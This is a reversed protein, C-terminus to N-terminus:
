KKSFLNLVLVAFLLANVLFLVHLVQQLSSHFFWLGLAEFFSFFFLAIVHRKRKLALEFYVLLNSFSFLTMAIGFLPLLEASPAYAAGFFIGVILKSFFVFCFLLVVAFCATYLFSRKLLVRQKKENVSESVMPLLVSAFSIALFYILKALLSAISYQGSQEASFFHKVLFIDINILFMLLCFSLLVTWSFWKPLSVSNVNKLSFAPFFEKLFPICFLFAIIVGVTIGFLAGFVGIGFFVLGVAAVVKVFASLLNSLGYFVFNKAGQLLSWPV